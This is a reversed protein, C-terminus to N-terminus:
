LNRPGPGEAEHDHDEGDSDRQLVLRLKRIIIYPVVHHSDLLVEIQRQCRNSYFANILGEDVYNEYGMQMGYDSEDM